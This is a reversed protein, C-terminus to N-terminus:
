LRLSGSEDRLHRTEVVGESRGGIDVLSQEDGISILRGRVRAGAVPEAASRAAGSKGREFEQLARRFEDSGPEEESPDAPPGQAAPETAAPLAAPPKIEPAENDLTM